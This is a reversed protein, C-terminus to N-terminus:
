KSKSIGKGHNSRLINEILEAQLEECIVILINKSELVKRSKM